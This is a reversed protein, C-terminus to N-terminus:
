LLFPLLLAIAAVSIARADVEEADPEASEDDADAAPGGSRGKPRRDTGTQGTYYDSDSEGDEHLAINIQEDTLGEPTVMFMSKISGFLSSAIYGAAYGEPDIMYHLRSCIFASIIISSALALISVLGKGYMSEWFSKEYPRVVIIINGALRRFCLQQTGKRFCQHTLDAIAANLRNNLAAVAQQREFYVYGNSHLTAILLLADQSTDMTITNIDQDNKVNFTITAGAVTHAFDTIVTPKSVTAAAGLPLTSVEIQHETNNSPNQAVTLVRTRGDEFKLNNAGVVLPAIATVGTVKGSGDRIYELLKSLNAPPQLEHGNIAFSTTTGNGDKQQSIKTIQAACSVSAVLAAALVLPYFFNSSLRM